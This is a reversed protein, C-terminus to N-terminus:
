AYSAGIREMRSAFQNDDPTPLDVEDLVWLLVM